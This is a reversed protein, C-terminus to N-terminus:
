WWCSVKASVPGSCMGRQVFVDIICSFDVPDKGALALGHLQVCCSLRGCLVRGHFSHDSSCEPTPCSHGNGSKATVDKLRHLFCASPLRTMLVRM